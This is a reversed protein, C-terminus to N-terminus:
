DLTRQEAAMRRLVDLYSVIGVLAGAGDLVPMAGLSRQSMVRAIADLDDDPAAALPDRQMVASVLAADSAGALARESLLGIVRRGDDTVLLHRLGLHTIMRRAHGVTSTAPIAIPTTSMFDAACTVLSTFALAPGARM